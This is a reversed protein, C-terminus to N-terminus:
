WQSPSVCRLPMQPTSKHRWRTTWCSGISVCASSKVSSPSLSRRPPDCCHHLLQSLGVLLVWPSAPTAVRCSGTPFAASTPGVAPGQPRPSCAALTGDVAGAPANSRAQGLIQPNGINCQYVKDFPLSDGKGERVQQQYAASKLAIAGRVAPLLPLWCSAALCSLSFHSDEELNNHNPWQLRRLTHWFFLLWLLLPTAQAGSHSLHVPGAAQSLAKLEGILAPTVQRCVGSRDGAARPVARALPLAKLALRVCPL